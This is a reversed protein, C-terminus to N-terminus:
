SLMHLELDKMDFNHSLLLKTENIVNMSTSFILIYDIYLCIIVHDNGISKSYMCKNFDNIAFDHSLVVQDFKKYWQIPAQKFGYLSKVLKCVRHEQGPIIFGAPQEM